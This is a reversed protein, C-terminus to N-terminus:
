FNYNLSFSIKIPTAATGTGAGVVEISTLNNMTISNSEGPAVVIADAVDAGNIVLAADWANLVGNNEVLITGNILFNTTNEWIPIATTADTVTITTCVADNVSSSGGSCGLNAM